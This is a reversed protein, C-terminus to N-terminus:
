IDFGTLYIMEHGLHGCEKVFINITNSADNGLTSLVSQIRSAIITTTNNTRTQFGENRSSPPHSPDDNHVYMYM